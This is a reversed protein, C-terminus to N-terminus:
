NSAKQAVCAMLIDFPLIACRERRRPIEFNLFSLFEQKSLTKIRELQQGIIQELLLDASSMSISCGQGSFMANTIISKDDICLDIQIHDGCMPNDDKYSLDPNQIVGKHKPTKYREIIIESM